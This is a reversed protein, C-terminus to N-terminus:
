KEEKGFLPLGIGISIGLSIGALYFLYWHTINVIWCCSGLMFWMVGLFICSTQTITKVKFTM